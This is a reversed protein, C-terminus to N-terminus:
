ARLDVGAAPSAAEAVPSPPPRSGLGALVLGRSALASELRPAGALVSQRVAERDSLFSLSLRGGELKGEVILAGAGPLQMHIELTWREGDSEAGAQRSERQLQLRLERYENQLQFPLVFSWTRNGSQDGPLSKLQSHIIASLASETEQRLSLWTEIEAPRTQTKNVQDLRADIRGLLQSLLSKMDAPLGDTGPAQQALAAEHFTGSSRLAAALGGPSALQAAPATLRLLQRVVSALEAPLGPAASAAVLLPALQSPAGPRDLQLGSAELLRLSAGADAGAAAPPGLVRLTPQPQVRVVELLLRAGQQIPVDATATIQLGGVRLVLEGSARQGTVLANLTQGVQWNKLWLGFNKQDTRATTLALQIEEM